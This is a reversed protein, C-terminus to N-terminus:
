LTGNEVIITAEAKEEQNNYAMVCLYTGADEETVSKFTLSYGTEGVKKKDLDNVGEKEWYVKGDEEVLCRLVVKDGVRAKVEKPEIKVKKPLFDILTDNVGANPDDNSFCNGYQCGSPPPCATRPCVGQQVPCQV